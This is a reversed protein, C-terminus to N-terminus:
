KRSDKMFVANTIASTAILLQLEVPAKFIYLVLHLITAIVYFVSNM